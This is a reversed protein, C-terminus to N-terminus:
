IENDKREGDMKAGCNPCYKWGVEDTDLAEAFEWENECESCRHVRWYDDPSIPEGKWNLWRGHVVEVADVTTANAITNRGWNVGVCLGNWFQKNHRTREQVFVDDYREDFLAKLADADILRKKYAM